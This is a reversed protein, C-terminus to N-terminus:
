IVKELRRMVEQVEEKTTEHGLSFRISCAVRDSSCGIAQLVHSPKSARAFCAAGSSVAVGASDL